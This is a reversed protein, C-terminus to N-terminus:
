QVVVVGVTEENEKMMNILEELERNKTYTNKELIITVEENKRRDLIEAKRLGDYVSVCEFGTNRMLGAMKEMEDHIYNESLTSVIVIRKKQAAFQKARVSVYEWADDESKWVREGAMRAAVGHLGRTRKGVTGLYVVDNNDRIEESSLLIGKYLCFLVVMFAGGVAGLLGGAIAYKLISMFSISKHNSVAVPVTLEAISDELEKMQERLERISIAVKEQESAVAGSDVYKTEQMVDTLSHEYSVEKVTDTMSRLYAEVEMAMSIAEEIDRGYTVIEMLGHNKINLRILEGLYRDKESITGLDGVKTCDVASWIYSYVSQIASFVYEEPIVEEEVVVNQITEDEVMISLITVCAPIKHPDFQMYISKSQYEKLAYLEDSLLEIEKNIDKVQSEYLELEKSYEESDQGAESTRVAKYQKVTAAGGLALALVIITVVIVKWKSICYSILGYISVSTKM